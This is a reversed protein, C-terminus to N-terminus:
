VPPPKPAEINPPRGSTNQAIKELWRENRQNVDLLPDIGGGGGFASGGVAQMSSLPGASAAKKYDDTGPIKPGSKVAAPIEAAFTKGFFGALAKIIDFLPRVVVMMELLVDLVKGFAVGLGTFDVAAAEELLGVMRPALVSLAGAFFQQVKVALAGIADGVKDFVPAFKEMIGALGGVQTRANELSGSDGLIALMKAGSKGFLETALRTREIPDTVGEFAGQLAEIQETTGANRLEGGSLGLASLAAATSNGEENVGALAKQFKAITPGVQDAGMGANEFAQRLVVLDGVSEGTSASLDSLTGGLDLANKLGFAVAAAAGAAVGVAAFMGPFRGMIAGFKGAWGMVASDAQQLSSLFGNTNLDIDARIM